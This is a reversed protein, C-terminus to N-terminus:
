SLLLNHQPGQGLWAAAAAAASLAAIEAKTRAPPSVGPVLPKIQKIWTCMILNLGSTRLEM